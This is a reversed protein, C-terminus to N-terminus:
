GKPASAPAADLLSAIEGAPSVAPMSAMARALAAPDASGPTATLMDFVPATALGRFSAAYRARLGALETERGLMALSIAHRLVVAQDVDSVAGAPPLAKGTESALGAWQRKKWLIESRLAGADPVNQLVAFAEEVRGLQSLAVAEVRQRAYIMADPYDENATKRLAAIARDPRGSLIHLSAVRASLPGQALDNVRTFLQHELLEAARGYLGASQLREALRSVLLDGDAGSPSLDRYDWYLGAAQELTLKTRPDLAATLKGQLSSMFEPGQRSPDFFRFLTAGASLSGRLDGADTSLKYSLRLAREEIEDGRWAYRLAALQKLAPGRKINGGAVEAEIGSLRADMREQMTGAREVRAFRLRAQDAHGLVLEAKGRYLNAVADRDPLQRLWNMAEGARGAEVGAKAAAIIFPKRKQAELAPRACAMHQLAQEAFGTESLIRMRWACAEPNNVLGPAGLESLADASHNMLAMAVGHALRFADVMDMDPDDQRMVELVGYAEPGRNQGILSRAYDWRVQQRTDQSARTIAKWSADDDVIKWAGPMAVPAQQALDAAFGPLRAAAVVPAAGAAPAPVAVTAPAEAPAYAEQQQQQSQATGSLAATSALLLSWRM